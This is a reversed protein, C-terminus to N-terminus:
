QEQLFQSRPVVKGRDVRFTGRVSGTALGEDMADLMAQRENSIISGPNIRDEQLSVAGEITDGEGVTSKVNLDADEALTLASLDTIVEITLKGDVQGDLFSAEAPALMDGNVRFNSVNGFNAKADGTVTVKGVSAVGSADSGLHVKKYGRIPDAPVANAISVLSLATGPNLVLDNAADAAIVVADGNVPVVGGTWNTTTNYATSTTGVWSRTAM